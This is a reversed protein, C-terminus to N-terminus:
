PEFNIHVPSDLELGLLDGAHGQFIGIELYGDSNFLAFCDGPEVQHYHHHIRPLKERGFRLQYKKDKSLINFTAQDINTILNGYHDVRVVHGSIIQKTAKIQRGLMRFIDPVPSGLKSIETGNALAAAAPALINKGPFSGQGDEKLGVAKYETQELLLGFVGNDPGLFFYDGADIVLHQNSKHGAANVAVIHITGKPFDRYVRQLTYAAHAIDCPSIQHTIDVIIASPCTSLIAAKVAAVYHDSDGYDSTLTVLAM